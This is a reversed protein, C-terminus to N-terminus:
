DFWTRCNYGNYLILDAEELVQTDAPVPEYVHPDTGPKLIGTLQIEDGGVRQTLDAIITSNAVVQPKDDAGPTTQNISAQTCGFLTLLLLIFTSPQLIFTAGRGEGRAQLM